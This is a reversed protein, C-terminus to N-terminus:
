SYGCTVLAFQVLCLVFWMVFLACTAFVHNEMSVYLSFAMALQLHSTKLLSVGKEVGLLPVFAYYLFMVINQLFSLNYSEQKRATKESYSLFRM